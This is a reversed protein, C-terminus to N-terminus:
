AKSVCVEAGGSSDNGVLRNRIQANAGDAKGIAHQQVKFFGIKFVISDAIRQANITALQM